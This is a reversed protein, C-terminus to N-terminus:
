NVFSRSYNVITFQWTNIGKILNRGCHNARLLRKTSRFWEKTIKERRETQKLPDAELIVLYHYTEIGRLMRILEQKPLKIGKTM